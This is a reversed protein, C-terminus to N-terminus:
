VSAAPPAETVTHPKDIARQPAGSLRSVQIGAAEPRTRLAQVPLRERDAEAQGMLAVVRRGGDRSCGGPQADIHRRLRPLDVNGSRGIVRAPRM